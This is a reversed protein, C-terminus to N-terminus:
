SVTVRRELVSGEAEKATLIGKEGIFSFLSLVGHGNKAIHSLVNGIRKPSAKPISKGFCGHAAGHRDRM